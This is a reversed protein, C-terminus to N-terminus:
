LLNAPLASTMPAKTLIERRQEAKRLSEIKKERDALIYRKVEQVEALSRGDPLLTEFPTLKLPGIPTTVPTSVHASEFLLPDIQSTFPLDIEEDGINIENTAHESCTARSLTEKLRSFMSAGPQQGWAHMDQSASEPHQQMPYGETVDFDSSSDSAAIYPDQTASDRTGTSPGSGSGIVLVYGFSGRIVFVLPSVMVVESSDRSVLVLDTLQVLGTVLVSSSSHVALSGTCLVEEQFFEFIHHNVVEPQEIQLFHQVGKLVITEKLSPVDARMGHEIHDKAGVFDYVIDQDGVIYITPVTVKSGAWAATLEWSLDLARYYNLAPTFGHKAFESVYYALDEESTWVPLPVTERAQSLGELKQDLKRGFVNRFFLEPTMQEIKAEIKGPAQFQCIYHDEGVAARM